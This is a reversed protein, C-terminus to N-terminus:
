SEDHLSGTVAMNFTTGISFAQASALHDDSQILASEHQRHPM